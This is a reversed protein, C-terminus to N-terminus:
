REEAGPLTVWFTSGKGPESELGIQGGQAEIALKCFPLGLGSSHRRGDKRSSVQGFKEFIRRHHEPAIGPGTDRVELRVGGDGPRLVIHVQGQRGTFSIANSTLNQVIRRTLDPDCRVTALDAPPQYTLNTERTRAGLEALADAVIRRLDCSQLAVPMQSAEMRSIDLVTTIMDRLKESSERIATADPVMEVLGRERLADELIEALGLIGQLPSRMDHVMMHVLGDRQAELERLGDFSTQLKARQAEIELQQRRLCLHTKVRALVEGEQFPKTVYDVGGEAFAQVKSATDDLASVFIVPIDRLPAAERLKRCLEFGSMEPMMIDLLFLDPPNRSAARIALSPQPFAVVRFGERHLMEMLLELNAPMDDVVMISPKDTPRDM